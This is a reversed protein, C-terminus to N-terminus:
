LCDKDFHGEFVFPACKLAHLGQIQVCGRRHETLYASGDAGVEQEGGTEVGM